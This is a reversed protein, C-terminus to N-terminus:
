GTPRNNKFSSQRPIDHEKIILNIYVNEPFRGGTPPSILNVSLDHLGAFSTMLDM